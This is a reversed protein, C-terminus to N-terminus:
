WIIITNINYYLSREQDSTDGDTDQANVDAGNTLLLKVIELHGNLTARTLASDGNNNQANVDAGNALLLKVVGIYGKQSAWIM